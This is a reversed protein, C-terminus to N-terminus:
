EGSWGFDEFFIQERPTGVSELRGVTAQVMAPSGCVYVDFRGADQPAAMFRRGVADAVTGQEGAFRPDNSVVPIVTMWPWRAALKEVAALDYLDMGTRAGFVLHTRPPNPLMAIHEAISKLPALGTSGAALLVDRGSTTDLQLTGVPSGLRLRTGVGATRALAPSVSGGDVLRM